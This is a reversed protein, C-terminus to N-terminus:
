CDLFLKQNFIKHLMSVVEVEIQNIQVNSAQDFMWMNQHVFKDVRMVIKRYKSKYAKVPPQSRLFFITIKLVQFNKEM